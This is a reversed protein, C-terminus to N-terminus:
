GGGVKDLAKIRAINKRQLVLSERAWAADGPKRELVQDPVTKVLSV